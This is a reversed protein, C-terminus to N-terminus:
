IVELKRACALQLNHSILCGGVQKRVVELTTVFVITMSITMITTMIMMTTMTKDPVDHDVHDGHDDHDDPCVPCVPFVFNVKKRHKPDSTGM